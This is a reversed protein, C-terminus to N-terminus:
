KLRHDVSLSPQVSPTYLATLMRKAYFSPSYKMALNRMTKFIPSQINNLQGMQWSTKTVHHAKRIRQKQYQAFAHQHKTPSEALAHALAFGSEIAQCAGQGLNPTTAHAADGILVVRGISWQRLPAFDYLDHRMIKDPAVADILQHLTDPFAEFLTHLEQQVRQPTSTGDAETGLTMWTYVLGDGISGWAARLGPSDGWREVMGDREAADLVYPVVFRWCTQGSYRYQVEPWLAERTASWIGDAGILIDVDITTGDDFAVHVEDDQPTVDRLRKGMCIRHVAGALLSQLKARHIAVTTHGFQAQVERGDTAQFFSGHIDGLGIKGTYPHGARTIADSLGLADFIALANPAVWIGAGVENLADAAEYVTVEFGFHQLAIATTCGGIGAGIIAIRLPKSQSAKPSQASTEM